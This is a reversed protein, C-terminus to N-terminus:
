AIATTNTAQLLSMRGVGVVLQLIHGVVQQPRDLLVQCRELFTVKALGANPEVVFRFLAPVIFMSRLNTAVELAAARHTNLQPQLVLNLGFSLVHNPAM